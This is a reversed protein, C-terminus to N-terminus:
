LRDKNKQLGGEKIVETLAEQINGKKFLLKMGREQLRKIGKRGINGSIIIACDRLLEYVDITKLHQMTNAFSNNRKEILRFQMGNKVEYIFMKNARGLMGQFVNIGDNTPIAIRIRNEKDDDLKKAKLLRVYNKFFLFEKFSGFNNNALIRKWDREIFDFAYPCEILNFPVKLYFPTKNYSFENYDLIFFSGNVKLVEFVSKIIVERINQPFGHLVFSTFVKDFGKRFPLSQDVRAHIIKANPFNACKKKFQSIMEESIDAGIIEGEKSLYKMMLCANRGTGTGLDLIRDTPEIGMLRISKEIFLPYKGFTALDLLADYHAAMFGRVEVKSEPYYSVM